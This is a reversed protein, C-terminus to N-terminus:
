LLHSISALRFKPKSWEGCQTQLSMEDGKKTNVTGNPRIKSPGFSVRDHDEILRQADGGGEQQLYDRTKRGRIANAPDTM